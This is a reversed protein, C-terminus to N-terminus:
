PACKRRRVCEGGPKPAPGPGNTAKSRPAAALGAGGRRPARSGRSWPARSRGSGEACAPSRGPRRGAPARPRGPPPDPETPERLRLTSRRPLPGKEWPRHPRAPRRAASMRRSRDPGGTRRTRPPDPLKRPPGRCPAADRRRTRRPPRAGALRRRPRLRPRRRARAPRTGVRPPRGRGDEVGSSRPNKSGRKSWSKPM